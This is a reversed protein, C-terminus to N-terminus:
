QGSKDADFSGFLKGWDQGGQTYARARMRRRAEAVLPALRDSLRDLTEGGGADGGVAGDRSPSFIKQMDSTAGAAESRDGGGLGSAGEFNSHAKVQSAHGQLCQRQDGVVMHAESQAESQAHEQAELWVQSLPRVAARQELPSDGSGYHRHKEHAERRSADRFARRRARLTALGIKFARREERRRRRRTTEDETGYGGGGGVSQSACSMSITDYASISVSMASSFLTNNFRHTSHRSGATSGGGMSVSCGDALSETRETLGNCSEGISQNSGYGYGYGYGYMGVLSEGTMGMVGMRDYGM